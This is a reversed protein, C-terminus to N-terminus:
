RDSAGIDLLRILDALNMAADDPTHGTTEIAPLGLTRYRRADALADDLEVPDLRSTLRRRREEDSCDLLVWADVPWGGLEDATCVGLLVLPAPAIAEVATRVLRRYAPWTDPSRRVDLGALESAPAMFADWDLVVHTPLLDALLPAITSKGSGPAGLVCTIM